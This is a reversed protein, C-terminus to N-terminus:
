DPDGFIVQTRDAPEIDVSGGPHTIVLLPTAPDVDYLRCEDPEPMRVEVMAPPFVTICNREPAKADLTVAQAQM